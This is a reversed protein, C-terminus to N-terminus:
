RAQQPANVPDALPDLPKSTAPALKARRPQAHLKHRLRGFPKEVVHYVVVAFAMSLVLAVLASALPQGPLWGAAIHLWFYHCLYFTYSVLGVWRLPRTNLIRMPGWDPYRVALWFMPFLALGQLTYRTVARFDEDRYLLTFAMLALAGFLVAARVAGHRLWDIDADLVPNRWIGMICGFLLSDLRTDTALYTRSPSANLMHILVARWLLEVVCLVLLLRATRAYPWRAACWCFLLPFVLYFHEEVALSWFTGTHPVMGDGLTALQYYNTVQLVQAALGAPSVYGPVLGLGVLALIGFLVLYMPPLIRYVRRLYFQKLSIQGYQEYEKRLLTTILYGSLFFFVTVGIGGPVLHGWGAHSVFVLAVAVARIGDLSPIHFANPNSM